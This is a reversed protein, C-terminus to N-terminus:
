LLRRSTANAIGDGCKEILVVGPLKGKEFSGIM